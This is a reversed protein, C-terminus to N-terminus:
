SDFELFIVALPAVLLQGARSRHSKTRRQLDGCAFGRAPDTFHKRAPAVGLGSNQMGVEIAITRCRVADLGALKAMAYGLALGIGNHAAVTAFVLMGSELLQDKSLAVICAVILVIFVVSLVPLAAEIQASPGGSAPACDARCDSSRDRDHPHVDVAGAPLCACIQRGAWSMLYPTAVVAALTSCSTMTVSLAVDGKALFTMVNSATGGPCSGVLILGAALAPPLNFVKSIGAAFPMILFQAALGVGVAYPQTAVRKFDTPTLTIGMGFMIVGLGPVAPVM